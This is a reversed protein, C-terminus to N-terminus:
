HSSVYKMPIEIFEYENDSDLYFSLSGEIKNRQNDMGHAEIYYTVETPIVANAEGDYNTTQKSVLNHSEDYIEINITNTLLKNGNLKCTFTAKSTFYKYNCALFGISYMLILSLLFVKSSTNIKNKFM